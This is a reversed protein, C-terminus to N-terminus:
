SIQQKDQPSDQFLHHLFQISLLELLFPCCTYLGQPLSSSWHTIVLLSALPSVLSPSCLPSALALYFWAKKSNLHLGSVLSSTALYVTVDELCLSCCIPPGLSPLRSSVLSASLHLSGEQSLLGLLHCASAPPITPDSLHPPGLPSLLKIKLLPYPFHSCSNSLQAM